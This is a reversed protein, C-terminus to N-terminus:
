EMRARVLDSFLKFPQTTLHCPHVWLDLIFFKWPIWFTIFIIHVIRGFMYLNQVRLIQKVKFRIKSANKSGRATASDLNPQHTWKVEGGKMDFKDM